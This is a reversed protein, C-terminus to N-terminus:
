GGSVSPNQRSVQKEWAADVAKDVMPVHEDYESLGGASSAKGVM